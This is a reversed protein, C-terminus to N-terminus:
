EMVKFMGTMGPAHNRFGYREYFSDNGHSAFLGTFAGAGPRSHAAIYKLLQEVIQQGAGRSQFEPLVAVDQIYFYMSGDGVIRGMGIIRDEHQIVVGYVSGGLSAASMDQNVTGWGVAAWLAAHEGVTPLREILEFNAM